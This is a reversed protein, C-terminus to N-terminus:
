PKSVILFSFLSKKVLFIKEKTEKFIPSVFSLLLKIM